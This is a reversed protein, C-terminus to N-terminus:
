VKERENLRFARFTKWENSMQTTHKSLCQDTSQASTIDCM